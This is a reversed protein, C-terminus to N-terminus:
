RCTQSRARSFEFIGLCDPCSRSDPVKNELGDWFVAYGSVPYFVMPEPPRLERSLTLPGIRGAEDPQTLPAVNRKEDIGTDGFPPLSGDPRRIESYFNKANEYKRSWEPPIDLNLLTAYRLAMGFLSLGFEHYEASHELVAGEPGVYFAIEEKLRSFATQRYAEVRSLFPFALCTQWLALNQMVGHNTSLTYLEPKALLAGSRAAFTWIEAAVEPRYDPRHRYVSWFDALTRVRAAVAHDSWLFGRDLWAGREYKAWALIDNRAAQYFEERGTIRYADLLIEPVVLGSFQLQWLGSGRDLDAPDFPHHIDIASFGPVEARGKLLKEAAGILQEDNRWKIALFRHSRM